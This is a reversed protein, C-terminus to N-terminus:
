GLAAPEPLRGRLILHYLHKIIDVGEFAIVIGIVLRFSIALGQSALRTVVPSVNGWDLGALAAPDLAVIAPGGLIRFGIGIMFISLGIALGRAMASWRGQSLLYSDLGIQLAWAVNLWPMYQFFAATLIPVTVWQGNHFSSLGIWQPYLNFVVLAVLTFFIEAVLEGVKVRQTDPEAKMKRPDWEKAQPRIEPNAWQIIAFIIVVIAFVAFMSSILRGVAQGLATAMDAPSLAATGLTVGMGLATLVLIVPIAVRLVAIFQPYLEPGILYRPPQYSAAVKDPAGMEKLVEVVMAEDVERGQTRSLDDLTDEISSRIEKQIDARMKEPLRRGVENVYLDIMEM